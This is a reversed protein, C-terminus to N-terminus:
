KKSELQKDASKQEHLCAIAAVKVQVSMRVQTSV